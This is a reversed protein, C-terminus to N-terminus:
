KANQSKPRKSAPPATTAAKGKDNLRGKRKAASPSSTGPAKKTDSPALEGQMGEEEITKVFGALLKGM